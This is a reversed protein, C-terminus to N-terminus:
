LLMVSQGGSSPSPGYIETTWGHSRCYPVALMMVALVASMSTAPKMRRLIDSPQSQCPPNVHDVRVLHVSAAALQM